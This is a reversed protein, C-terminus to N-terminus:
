ELHLPACSSDGGAPLEEEGEGQGTRLLKGEEASLEKVPMDVLDGEMPYEQRSRSPTGENSRPLADHLPPHHIEAISPFKLKKKSYSLCVHINCKM